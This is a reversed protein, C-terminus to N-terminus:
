TYKKLQNILEEAEEQLSLFVDVKTICAMIAPTDYQGPSTDCSDAWEIERLAKAVLNLHKRFAKREPTNEEFEADQVRSYLYDMSGGSM